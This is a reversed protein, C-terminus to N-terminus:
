KGYYVRKVNEPIRSVVEHPITRLKKAIEEVTIRDGGDEGILTAIDGIRAERLRPSTPDSLKSIDIITQNMCVLGIVFCRMGKILVEGKNSLGRDYGDSYGAGLVAIKGDYPMKYTMKYGIYDGKKVNKVQIIKTRFSLAPKRNKLANSLGYMAIGCRVLNFRADKITLAGVSNSMHVIKPNIGVEKLNLLTQKFKNLQFSSYKKDTSEAFHSFVGEIKIGLKKVKEVFKVANEPKIGLRHMGTDIKLHVKAGFKALEKAFDLDYLVLSLDNLIASKINEKEVLGLCLIPAKIGAQRLKLGEELNFVGLWKAGAKIATKSVEILGHGYANAKVIAILDTKGGITKKIERVNHAIADLNIELWNLM